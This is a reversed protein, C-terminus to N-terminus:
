YSKIFTRLFHSFKRLTIFAQYHAAISFDQIVQCINQLFFISIRNLLKIHYFCTHIPCCNLPGYYHRFCKWLGLLYQNISKKQEFITKCIKLGQQHASYILLLISCIMFLKDSCLLFLFYTWFTIMFSLVIYTLFVM